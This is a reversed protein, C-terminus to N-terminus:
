GKSSVGHDVKNGVFQYGFGTAHLVTDEMGHDESGDVGWSVTRVAQQRARTVGKTTSM